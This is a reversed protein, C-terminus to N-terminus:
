LSQTFRNDLRIFIQLNKCLDRVNGHFLGIYQYIGRRLVALIRPVEDPHAALPIVKGRHALFDITCGILSLSNQM